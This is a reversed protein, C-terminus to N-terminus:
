GRHCRGWNDVTLGCAKLGHARRPPRREVVIAALCTRTERFTSENLLIRRGESRADSDCLSVSCEALIARRRRLSYIRDAGSADRFIRHLSQPKDRRVDVKFGTRECVGRTRAGAGAPRSSFPVGTIGNQIKSRPNQIEYDGTWFDDIWFRSLRPSDGCSYSPRPIRAPLPEGSGPWTARFAKPSAPRPPLRSTAHMWSQHIVAVGSHNEPGILWSVQGCAHQPASQQRSREDGLVEPVLPKHRAQSWGGRPLFVQGTGSATQARSCGVHVRLLRGFRM